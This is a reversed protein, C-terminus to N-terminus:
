FLITETLPVVMGPESLFAGANRPEVAQPKEWRVNRGFLITSM